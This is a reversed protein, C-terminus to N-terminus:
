ASGFEGGTHMYSDLLRKEAKRLHELTTSKGRALAKAVDASEARKPIDYYGCQYAVVLAERQKPTLIAIAPREPPGEIDADEVSLVKYRMKFERLDALFGKMQDNSGVVTIRWSEPTLELAPYMAGETLAALRAWGATPRGEINALYAGDALQALHGVKSIGIHGVMQTPRVAPDRFKVRCIGAYARTDFRFLHIVRFSEIVGLETLRDFGEPDQRPLELVVRRTAAARRLLGGVALCETGPSSIRRSPRTSPMM